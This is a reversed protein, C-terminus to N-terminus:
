INDQKTYTKRVVEGASGIPEMAQGNYIIDVAGADGFVMVIENEDEFILSDEGKKLLRSFEIKGNISVELWCDGRVPLVEIKIGSYETEPEINLDDNPAKDGNTEKPENIITNDPPSPIPMPNNWIKNVALLIIVALVLVGFRVLKNYNFSVKPSKKQRYATEQVYKSVNDVDPWNRNFEEIIEKPDVELLKCYSRLFGVIYVKGPLVKYEDNEIAEIYYKRIKTFEEVQDLTLGLSVRVERLKAGVGSM